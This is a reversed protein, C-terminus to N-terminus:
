VNYFKTATHPQGVFMVCCLFIMLVFKQLGIAASFKIEM